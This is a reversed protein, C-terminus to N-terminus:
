ATGNFFKYVPRFGIPGRRVRAEAANLAKPYITKFLHDFTADWSYEREVLARAERGMAAVKNPWIDLVAQAMADTDEVPVLIGNAPSVRSPMAGSDVGIVPLGCAQAEIVSIGFTESAMASVYIDSSALARALEERDDMFGPFVVNM